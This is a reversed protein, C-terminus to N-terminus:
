AIQEVMSCLVSYSAVVDVGGTPSSVTNENTRATGESRTSDSTGCGAVGLTLSLIVSGLLSPFKLRFRNSM